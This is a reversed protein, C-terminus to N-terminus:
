RLADMLMRITDNTNERSDKSRQEGGPTLKNAADKRRRAEYYTNRDKQMKEDEMNVPYQKIGTWFSLVQLGQELKDYKDEIGTMEELTAEVGPIAASASYILYDLQRLFPAANEILQVMQADMQLSKDDMKLELGEEAGGLRLLGDLFGTMKPNGLVLQLTYPADEFDELDKKKFFDYGQGTMKSAIQKIVPHASNVLEDKLGGAAWRPLIKGEERKFLTPLQKGEEWELPIKNLDAFPMDMRQMLTEGGETKGSPLFNGGMIWEPLLDEDFSPDEIDMFEMAKPFMSYIDPHYIIAEVQNVVNHRLWSYFSTVNKMTEQEFPTNGSIYIHGNRRAVLTNNANHICWIKGNYQVEKIDLQNTYTTTNRRYVAIRHCNSSDCEYKRIVSRRGLLFCLIQFSDSFEKGKQTFSEHTGGNKFRKVSGDAKIMVDYLMEAQEKTLECVFKQTLQKEPFIARIKKDLPTGIYLTMIDTQNKSKEEYINTEAFVSRLRRLEDCNEPNHSKSQFVQISSGKQIYTGETLAWGVLKVFDDSYKKDTPFKYKDSVVKLKKGGKLLEQSLILSYKPKKISIYGGRNGGNKVWRHRPTVLADFATNKMQIMPKNYDSKHIYTIEKWELVDQEINFSLANDAENITDITRWGNDTLIETETDFCLDEYDIFWKKSSMMAGQEATEMYNKRAVADTPAKKMVDEFNLMFSKFKASNEIVSGLKQSGRRGFFESSLPNATMSKGMSQLSQTATFGMQSESLLGKRISKEALSKVTEGGVKKNLISNYKAMTIGAQELLEKPKNKSLAYITAALAEVDKEPDLWKAGHNVFGTMQNSLHNRIHFGPTMTVMGRWWSSYSKYAQRVAPLAKGSTSGAIRGFVEAVEKDFLMNEFGKEGITEIGFEPYKTIGKKFVSKKLTRDGQITSADLGFEKFTDMLNVRKAVQAQSYARASLLDDLDMVHGSVTNGGKTKTTLIKAAEDDTLKLDKFVWKLKDAEMQKIQERSFSRTHAFGPKPGSGAKRYGSMKRFAPDKVITPIYNEIYGKRDVYGKTAWEDYQVSWNRTLKTVKEALTKTQTVLEEPIDLKALLEPNDLVDFVTVSGGKKKAAKQLTEARDMAKVFAEKVEDTAGDTAELVGKMNTQAERLFFHSGEDLEKMRILKQYPNRVGMARKIQGIPGNQTVQWWADALGAKAKGLMQGTNTQNIMKGLQDMGRNALPIRSNVGLEKGFISAIYRQGAEGEAGGYRGALGDLLKQLVPPKEIQAAMTDLQTQHAVFNGIEDVPTELLKNYGIAARKSGQEVVPEAGKRILAELGEGSTNLATKYADKYITNLTRSLDGGANKMLYETGEKASEGFLKSFKGADVGSSAIKALDEVGGSGINQAMRKVAVEVSDGAFQKAIGKAAKTSKGALGAGIYTLPDLFIDGALGLLDGITAQGLIKDDSRKDVGGWSFLQKETFDKFKGTAHESIVDSFQGKQEGTIGRKAAGLIDIIKKDMPENESLNDLAADFINASVYQGRSLLDFIFQVPKLKKSEKGEDEEVKQLWPMLDRQAQTMTGVGSPVGFGSDASPIGFGKNAKPIGYDSM